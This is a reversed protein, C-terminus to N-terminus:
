RALTFIVKGKEKLIDLFSEIMYDGFYWFEGEIEADGNDDYGMSEAICPSETLGVFPNGQGADFPQFSGNTWYSETGEILISLDDKKEQMESIESKLDDTENEDAADLTLELDGNELQTLIFM